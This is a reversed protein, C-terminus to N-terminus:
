NLLNAPTEARASPTTQTSDDAPKHSHHAFLATLADLQEISLAAESVESVSTAVEHAVGRHKGAGAHRRDSRALDRAESVRLITAKLFGNFRGLLHTLEGRHLGV